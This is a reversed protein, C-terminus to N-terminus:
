SGAAQDPDARDSGDGLAPSETADTVELWRPQAPAGDAFALNIVTPGVTVQPAVMAPPEYGEVQREIYKILLNDSDPLKKQFLALARVQPHCRAEDYALAFDFYMGSDEGRGKALWRRLTEVSIRAM